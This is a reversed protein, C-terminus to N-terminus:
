FPFVFYWICFPLVLISYLLALKSKRLVMSQGVTDAKCGCRVGMIDQAGVFGLECAVDSCADTGGLNNPSNKFGALGAVLVHPTDVGECVEVM